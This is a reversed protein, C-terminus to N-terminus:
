AQQGPCKHKATTQGTHSSSGLSFLCSARLQGAVKMWVRPDM